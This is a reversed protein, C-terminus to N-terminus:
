GHLHSASLRDIPLLPERIPKARPTAAEPVGREPEGREIGLNLAHIAGEIIEDTALDGAMKEDNAM